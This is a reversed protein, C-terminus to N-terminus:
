NWKTTTTLENLALSGTNAGGDSCPSTASWIVRSLQDQKVMLRSLWVTKTYIGSSNVSFLSNNESNPQIEDILSFASTASVRLWM